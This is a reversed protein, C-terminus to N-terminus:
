NINCAPDEKDILGDYNNDIGDYCSGISDLSEARVNKWLWKDDIKSWQYLFFEKYFKAINKNKIVILNEDNRNEGSNSFNMSGIITYEDDVIMSKSHMKGAYNETKVPIKANRLEWHKTHKISANVADMIIGIEVGRNKAKILAETVRKETLVFTPIYIYKKANNILPIVANALAKDQPSFYIELETGSLNFKKVGFSKKDNHFNGGYMQEFEAKYAKAIEPSYVKIVSNTNFGSMETRSLNASGTILVRDDFIYFKNHMINQVEASNKDSMNAPILNKFENTNQYINEGNKDSDCVLRIKVGRSIASKLANEIAPVNSYGYIAMDITKQASNINRLIEKCIETSCERTPKLNETFDSLIIKIDGQSYITNKFIETKKKTISTKPLQSKRLVLFNELERVERDTIKYINGNDLNLVRFSDKRIQKLRYELGKPNTINGNQICFASHLFKQRYSYKVFILDSNDKIFVLRGQMLNATWYKGLNGLVFAEEETISLKNALEKNRTTFKSDFTELNELKFIKKDLVFELPSKVDLIRYFKKHPVFFIANIIFM